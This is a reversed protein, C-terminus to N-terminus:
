TVPPLTRLFRLRTLVDRQPRWRGRASRDYIRREQNVIQACDGQHTLILLDGHATGENSPVVVGCVFCRREYISEWRDDHRM